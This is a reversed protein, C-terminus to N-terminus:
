IRKLRNTTPLIEDFASRRQLLYQNPLIHVAARVQIKFSRCRTIPLRVRGAVMFIKSTLNLLPAKM